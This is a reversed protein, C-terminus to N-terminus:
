VSVFESETAVANALGVIFPLNCLMIKNNRTNVITQYGPVGMVCWEPQSEIVEGSADSHLATTFNNNEALSAVVGIAVMCNALRLLKEVWQRSSSESYSGLHKLLEEAGARIQQNPSNRAMTMAWKPSPDVLSTQLLALLCARQAVEGSIPLIEEYRRALYLGVADEYITVFGSSFFTALTTRLQSHVSAIKDAVGGKQILVRGLYIRTLFRLDWFSFESPGANVSAEYELLRATISDLWEVHRVELDIRKRSTILRKVKPLLDADAIAFFDTDSTPTRLDTLSSGGMAILVRDGHDLLDQLDHLM